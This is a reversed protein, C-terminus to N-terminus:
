SADGVHSLEAELDDNIMGRLIAFELRFRHLLREDPVVRELMGMQSDVFSNSFTMVALTGKGEKTVSLVPMGEETLLLPRGGEITSVYDQGIPWSSSGSVDHITNYRIQNRPNIKMGFTQLLSNASSDTNAPDDMLLVKGGRTVHERITVIEEISFDRRPNIIVVLDSSETCDKISQGVGPFYGLRLVWQFFVAYSRKHDEVFGLVPLEYSSHDKEFYIQIPKTHPEPLPYNAKNVAAFLSIGIAITCVVSIVVLWAFRLDKPVNGLFIFVSALCVIAISLFLYNLWGLQNEKNLWNMTGLLLEPKGPIFASFNSFVTSDTFAAVRGEGHKVAIMQVFSGFNMNAADKVQPYFNASHYDIDLSKLGSALIAKQALYSEPEISCSVAFLFPPMNQVIPHALIQPRVYVQEFKREIDFLCDYRFSFNFQEAIPNLYASSGFVNTHEGLLLLGGGGRVFQVIAQVEEHSFPETPIKVILVDYGTLLNPTIEEFNKDLHYYYSLYDAMCYYNYGSEPGYWKTDYERTTIEWNSHKEDILVRGEKYSGPDHYSICGVILFASMCLLAGAMLHRRNLPHFSVIREINAQPETLPFLKRVLLWFPLFSVATIVPSWFIYIKSVDEYYGVFYMLYVFLLIMFIYRVILYIVGVIFFSLLSLAKKKLINEKSLLWVLIGGSVLLNLFPLLAIKEWTTTFAHIERMTQVFVTGQSFSVPLNVLELLRYIVPSLLSFEHSKSTFVVYFHPILSQVILIAGGFFLGLVLASLWHWRSCLPIILLGAFLLWLGLDYPFPLLLWSIALPLLLLYYKKNFYTFDIKTKSLAISAAGVGALTLIAVAPYNEYTHIHLSFLWTMSILFLALWMKFRTATM